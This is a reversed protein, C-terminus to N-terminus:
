SNGSFTAEVAAAYRREHALLWQKREVGSGYNGLEGDARVIRHCPIVLGIPNAGCATGAARVAAPRGAARALEAYPATQGAPVAQIAAWVRQQFSTGGADVSVAGLADLDGALYAELRREAEDHGDGDRQVEGPFRRLIHRETREWCDLFSLGVVKGARSAIRLGGAPTPHTFMSIVAQGAQARRALEDV